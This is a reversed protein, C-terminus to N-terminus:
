KRGEGARPRLGGPRVPFATIFKQGEVVLRLHSAPPHNQRRGAQGGVYGIPRQLDVTYITRQGERATDTHTGTLAQRYARDVLAVAEAPDSSDFVGHQGPRDPEDRAHRMLHKLRHGQQSGRLYRLGAPSVYVEHSGQLLIRDLAAARLPDTTPRDHAPRSPQAPRAPKASHPAQSAQPTSSAGNTDFLGSLDWGLTRELVPLLLLCGVLGVGLILLWRPSLREFGLRILEQLLKTSPPQSRSM